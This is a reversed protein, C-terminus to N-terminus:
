RPGYHARVEDVIRGYARSKAGAGRDGQRDAEDALIDQRSTFTSLALRPDHVHVHSGKVTYGQDDANELDYKMEDLVGPSVKRKYHPPNGTGTGFEESRSM